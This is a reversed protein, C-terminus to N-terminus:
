GGEIITELIDYRNNEDVIRTNVNDLSNIRNIKKDIMHNKEKDRINDIIVISIKGKDKLKKTLNNIDTELITSKYTQAIKMNKVEYQIGKDLECIKINYKKEYQQFNEIISEIDNERNIKLTKKNKFKM